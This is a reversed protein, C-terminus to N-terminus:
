ATKLLKPFSHPWKKTHLNNYIVISEGKSQIDYKKYNIFVKYVYIFLDELLNM